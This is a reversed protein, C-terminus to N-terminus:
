YNVNTMFLRGGITLPKFKAFLLSRVFDALNWGRNLRIENQREFMRELPNTFILDSFPVNKHIRNDSQGLEPVFMWASHFMRCCYGLNGQYWCMYVGM